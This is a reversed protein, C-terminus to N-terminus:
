FVPLSLANRMKRKAKKKRVMDKGTEKENSILTMSFVEKM